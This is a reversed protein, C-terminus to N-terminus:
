HNVRNRKLKYFFLHSDSLNSDEAMEREQCFFTMQKQRAYTTLLFLKQFYFSMQM